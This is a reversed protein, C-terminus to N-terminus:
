QNIESLSKSRSSVVLMSTARRNRITPQCRREPLRALKNLRTFCQPLSIFHRGSIEGKICLFPRRM